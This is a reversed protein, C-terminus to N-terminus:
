LQMGWLSATRIEANAAAFVCVAAAAGLAWRWGQSQIHNM